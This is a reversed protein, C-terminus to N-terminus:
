LSPCCHNDPSRTVTGPHLPVKPPGADMRHNIGHDLAHRNKQNNQERSSTDGCLLSGTLPPLRVLALTTNAPDHDIRSGVLWDTWSEDIGGVIAKRNQGIALPM